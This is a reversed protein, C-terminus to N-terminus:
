TNFLPEIFIPSLLIEIVAFFIGVGTGWIWWTRPARRFVAYLVITLIVAGVIGVGLSILQEGFWPAFTQTALGYAHERFYDRYVGLPFSLVAVLLMYPIIYLAVQFAKIRTTREAFDRMRASLRSGLLFLAIAASLLFDWLLLWYGGEFYADSKARKEAPVSALWAQTAAAPDFTETPTATAAVPPQARIVTVNGLSLCVILLALLFLNKMSSLYLFAGATLLRKERSSMM